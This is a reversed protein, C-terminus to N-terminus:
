STERLRSDGGPYGEELLKVQRFFSEIKETENVNFHDFIENQGAELLVDVLHAYKQNKQLEEVVTTM